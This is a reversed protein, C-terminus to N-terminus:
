DADRERSRQKLKAAIRRLHTVMLTEVRWFAKWLLFTWNSLLFVLITPGASGIARVEFRAIWKFRRISRSARLSQTVDPESDFDIANFDDLVRNFAADLIVSSTLAILALRERMSEVAKVIMQAHPTFTERSKELDAAVKELSAKLADLEAKDVVRPDGDTLSQIRTEIGEQRAWGDRLETAAQVAKDFGIQLKNCGDYIAVYTALRSGRRQQRVEWVKVWAQTILAIAGAILAGAVASSVEPLEFAM